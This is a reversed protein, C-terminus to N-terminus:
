NLAGYNCATSGEVSASQNGSNTQDTNLAQYNDGSVSTSTGGSARSGVSGSNSQDADNSSSGSGQGSNTENSNANGTAQSSNGSTSPSNAVSSSSSSNGTATSTVSCNYQRAINTNYVPAAYYGSNQKQRLEELYAKNVKDASTEFQWAGNEGINNANAPFAILLAVAFAGSFDLIRKMSYGESSSSSIPRGSRPQRTIPAECPRDPQRSQAQACGPHAGSSVPRAPVTKDDFGDACGERRHEADRCLRDRAGFHTISRVPRCPTDVTASALVDGM